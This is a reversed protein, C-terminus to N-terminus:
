DWECGSKTQPFVICIPTQSLSQIHGNDSLPVCPHFTGLNELLSLILWTVLYKMLDSYIPMRFWMWFYGHVETADLKWGWWKDGENSYSFGMCHSIVAHIHLNKLWSCESTLWTKYNNNYLQDIWKPQTEESSVIPALFVYFNDFPTWLNDWTGSTCWATKITSHPYSLRRYMVFTLPVNQNDQQQNCM